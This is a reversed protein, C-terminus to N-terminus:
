EDISKVAMRYGTVVLFAGFIYLIWHFKAILAAGMLIMAGRMILAGLIGWYLVKHQYKPPVKFYTFLLLFVFLNDVSLSKEILYGTFFQLASEHGYWAYVGVNFLLAIAIWIGSWILAERISIQHPKRNFVILDLSLLALIFINFLVWLLITSM